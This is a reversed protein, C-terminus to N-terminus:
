LAGAPAEPRRLAIDYLGNRQYALWAIPWRNAVVFDAVARHVGYRALYPDVHAFDNFVLYGGPKVKPAAAEADRRVGDYSHDADIYIWDFSSEAFGALVKDSYGAHVHVRPDAAVETDLLSLDLDVIHLEAPDCAGLIYRAFKGHLTGIEAVRARRPLKKVLEERSACLRAEAFLEPPIVASPIAPATLHRVLGLWRRISRPTRNRLMLGVRSNYM